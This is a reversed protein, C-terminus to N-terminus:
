APELVRGWMMEGQWREIQVPTIANRLPMASATVVRVYNGTFGSWMQTNALPRNTEWLVPHVSGLLGQQFRARQEGALALLRSMRQRMEEAGVRGQFHAASTGPRVSYPFVHLGALGVRQCFAYTEEFLEATEGPFGVIVDATVSAGPAWTQITEVTAQYQELTYRRRMRALVRASGSQLPLHFHPCLRPDEWLKLMEPAVEQPQLSSVRLRALATESLLRALLRSLSAGPLDFGYAGLQTGTLVVERYGAEVLRRVQALLVDPPISRERGRVKPVICYACVQNCGEQIKLFARTRLGAGPGPRGPPFGYGSDAGDAQPLGSGRKLTEGVLSVLDKKQTNGAVLDMTGLGRLEQPARQAYCGTAVVLAGPTQRRARRLAQRAKADAESTVTCTNLVYVDAAQPDQVLTYGAERFQSAMAQTDAQNLKCGHTELYVSPRGAPNSSAASM